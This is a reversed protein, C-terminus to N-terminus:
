SEKQDCPDYIIQILSRKILSNKRVQTRHKRFRLKGLVCSYILAKVPTSRIISLRNDWRCAHRSYVGTLPTVFVNLSKINVVFIM